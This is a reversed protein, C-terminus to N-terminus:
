ESRRMHPEQVNVLDNSTVENTKTGGVSAPIITERSIIPVHLYEHEDELNVFLPASNDCSGVKELFIADRAEIIRTTHSPCYFHFSKSREPYSIFHCSITKPDLKRINPNFNKAKAPCGWVHLYGLKSKRQTWIEYPTKPVFKTSVRNLIHM